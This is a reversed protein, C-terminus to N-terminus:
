HGDDGHHFSHHHHHQQQQGEVMMLAMPPQQPSGVHHLMHSLKRAPRVPLRVRHEGEGEGGGTEDDDDEDHDDIGAEARPRKRGQQHHHQPQQQPTGTDLSYLYEDGSVHMDAASSDFKLWPQGLAMSPASPFADHGQQHQQELTASAHPKDNASSSAAANGSGDTAGMTMWLTGDPNSTPDHEWPGIRSGDPMDGMTTSAVTPAMVTTGDSAFNTTWGTLSNELLSNLAEPIGIKGTAGTRNMHSGGAASAAASAWAQLDDMIGAVDSGGDGCVAADEYGDATAGVPVSLSELFSDQQSHHDGSVLTGQSDLTSGSSGSGDSVFSLHHQLSDTSAITASDFSHAYVSSTTPTTQCEKGDGNSTNNDLPQHNHLMNSSTQSCLAQLDSTNTNSDYPTSDYSMNDYAMYDNSFSSGHITSGLSPHLHQQQHPQGHFSYGGVPDPSMVSDCPPQHPSSSADPIVYAREQHYASEPDIKSLFWWSTGTEPLEPPSNDKKKSGKKGKGKGKGKGGSSKDKVNTMTSEAEAECGWTEAEDEDEYSKEKDEKDKKDPKDEGVTFTWLLLARRTWTPSESGDNPASWVEQYMAIQELLEQPTAMTKAASSSKDDECTVGENKAGRSPTPKADRQKQEREATVYSALRIFTNAWSKSPFPVEIIDAQRDSIDCPNVCDWFPSENKDGPAWDLERPKIISTISRWRHHALEPRCIKLEVTGDLHTGSPFQSTTHLNLAVEMQITDCPGLIYRATLVDPPYIDELAKKLKNHLDPFRRNWRSAIERVPGSEKQALKKSYQHLLYKPPSGKRSRELDRLTESDRNLILHPYDGKQEPRPPSSFSREAGAELCSGDTAYAKRCDESLTVETSSVYIWCTQPRLFVESEAALLCAFYEYNPREDPLRGEALAILVPNNKFSMQRGQEKTYKRDEKKEDCKRTFFFHVALYTLDSVRHKIL